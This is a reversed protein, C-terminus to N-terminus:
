RSLKEILRKWISKKLVKDLKQQRLAGLSYYRNYCDDCIMNYDIKTTPDFEKSRMLKGCKDCSGTLAIM